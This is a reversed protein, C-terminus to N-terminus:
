NVEGRIDKPVGGQVLFELEKWPYPPREDNSTHKPSAANLCDPVSDAMAEETQGGNLGDCRTETLEAVSDNLNSLEYNGCVQEKFDKQIEKTHILCDGGVNIQKNKVSKKVRCSMMHEIVGLSSRVNVWTRVKKTKREESSDCGSKKEITDDGECLRM